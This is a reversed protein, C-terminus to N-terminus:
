LSLGGSYTIDLGPLKLTLTHSLILNLARGIQTAEEWMELEVTLRLAGMRVNVDLKDEPNIKMEKEAAEELDEVM